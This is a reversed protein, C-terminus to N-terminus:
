CGCGYRSKTSCTHEQKVDDVTRCSERSLYLAQQYYHKANQIDDLDRSCDGLCRLATVASRINNVTRCMELEMNHYELASELSEEDGRKRYEEALANCCM